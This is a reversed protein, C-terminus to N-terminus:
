PAVRWAKTAREGIHSLPLHGIDHLLAAMRLEAIHRPEVVNFKSLMRQMIFLVGISHAFRSHVASPFSAYSLGMQRIRHLRQFLPTNVIRYEYESMWINGFVSDYLYDHRYANDTM